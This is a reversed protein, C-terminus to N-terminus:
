TRRMAELSDRVFRRQLGRALPLTTKVVWHNPRSFAFLDYWVSDDNRDWEVVFREEGSEAHNQLTGYAFGWRCVPGTEEDVIYIVRSANMSCFGFHRIVIAVTAGPEIRTSPWCLKIWPIDFMAWRRIRTVANRFAVEGRGIQIRNHDTDYGPVPKLDRSAGVDPYSFTADAQAALFREIEDQAPTRLFFM